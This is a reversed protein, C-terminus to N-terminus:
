YLYACSFIKCFEVVGQRVAVVAAAAAATVVKTFQGNVGLLKGYETIIEFEDETMHIGGTGPLRRIGAKFEAFTLGGDGDYDLTDFIRDSKETLDEWDQYDTLTATIPDLVGTIRRKEAEKRKIENAADKERQVNAIFEDLLVAVVVNLLLVNGILVYSIFFLAIGPDTEVHGDANENFLSRTVGSSWSDGALPVHTVHLLVHSTHTYTHELHTVGDDNVDRQQL